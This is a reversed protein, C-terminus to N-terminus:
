SSIKEVHKEVEMKNKRQELEKELEAATKWNEAAFAEFARARKKVAEIDNKLADISV